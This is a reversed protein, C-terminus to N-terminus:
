FVFPSAKNPYVFATHSNIFSIISGRLIGCLSLYLAAPFLYLVVAAPAHDVKVKSFTGSLSARLKCISCAQPLLNSGHRHITVAMVSLSFCLLSLFVIKKIRIEKM